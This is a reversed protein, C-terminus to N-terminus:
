WFPPSLQSAPNRPGEREPSCPFRPGDSGRSPLHLHLPWVPHTCFSVFPPVSPLNGLRSVASRLWSSLGPSLSWAEGAPPSRSLSLHVASALTLTIGCSCPESMVMIWGGALQLEPGFGSM